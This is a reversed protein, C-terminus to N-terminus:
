EELFESLDETSFINQKKIHIIPLFILSGHHDLQDSFFIKDETKNYVIYNEQIPENQRYLYITTGIGLLGGFQLYYIHQDKFQIHHIVSQMSRTALDTLQKLSEIEVIGLNKEKKEEKESM